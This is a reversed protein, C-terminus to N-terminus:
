PCQSSNSKTVITLEGSASRNQTLNVPVFDTASSSGAAGINIVTSNPSENTLDFGCFYNKQASNGWNITLTQSASFVDSSDKACIFSYGNYGGTTSVIGSADYITCDESGFTISSIYDKSDSKLSLSGSVVVQDVGTYACTIATNTKSETATDYVLSPSCIMYDSEAQIYGQWGTEWLYIECNSTISVNDDSYFSCNGYGDSVQVDILNAASVGTQTEISAVNDSTTADNDEVSVQVTLTAKTAPPDSANFPCSDLYAYGTRIAGSIVDYDADNGDGADHGRSGDAYDNNDNLCVFDDPVDAFVMGSNSDPRWMPKATDAIGGAANLYCGWGGDDTTDTLVFDQGEITIGDEIGVSGFYDLSDEPVSVTAGDSLTYTDCGSTCNAEDANITMGRYVRRLAIDPYENIDAANPDGMCMKESGDASIGTALLIGINGYWGGGVYCAYDLYQYDGSSSVLPNNTPDAYDPGANNDLYGHWGGDSSDDVLNGNLDLEGYYFTCYAADSALLSVNKVDDEPGTPNVRFVNGDVDSPFRSDIYLKGKIITFSTCTDSACAADLTLYIKGDADALYIDGSEDEYEILKDKIDDTSRGEGDFKSDYESKQEDTMGDFDIQGDGIRARGTPNDVLSLDPKAFSEKISFEDRFPVNVLMAIPDGSNGVWTVQVGLSFYKDAQYSCTRTVSFSANTGSVTSTTSTDATICGVIQSNSAFSNSDLARFEEIVNQAVGAAELRIKNTSSSSFLNGQLSALAILGVSVVVLAVLIEILSFGKDFKLSKLIKDRSFITLM